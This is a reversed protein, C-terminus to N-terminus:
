WVSQVSFNCWAWNVCHQPSFNSTYCTSKGNLGEPPALGCELRSKRRISGAIRILEPSTCPRQKEVPKVQYNLLNHALYDIDLRLM